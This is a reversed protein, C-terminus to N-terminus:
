SNLRSIQQKVAAAAINVVYSKVYSASLNDVGAIFSCSNQNCRGIISRWTLSNGEQILPLVSYPFFFSTNHAPDESIQMPSKLLLGGYSEPKKHLLCGTLHTYSVSFVYLFSFVFFEWLLDSIFFM